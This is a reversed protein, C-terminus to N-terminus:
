AFDDESYLEESDYGAEEPDFEFDEEFDSLSFDEKNDGSSKKDKEEKKKDETKQPNELKDLKKQMEKIKDDNRHTALWIWGMPGAAVAMAKKFSIGKGGHLKKKKEIHKALLMGTLVGQKYKKNTALLNLASKTM